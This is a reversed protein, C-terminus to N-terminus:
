AAPARRLHPSIECVVLGDGAAFAMNEGAELLYSERNLVHVLLQGRSAVLRYPELCTHGQLKGTGFERRVMLNFDRVAGDVLSGHVQIDGSFSFPEFPQLDFSKLGPMDLRMGNGELMMIHREFGKFLSFPGNTAVTAISVRWDFNGVGPPSACIETTTGGGNKWPMVKYDSQSIVQM